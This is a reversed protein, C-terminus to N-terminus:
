IDHGRRRAGGPRHSPGGAMEFPDEEDDEQNKFAAVENMGGQWIEWWRRIVDKEETSNIEAAALKADKTFNHKGLSIEKKKLRPDRVTRRWEIMRRWYTSLGLKNRRNENISRAWESLFDAIEKLTLGTELMNYGESFCENYNYIAWFEEETEDDLPPKRLPATEAGKEEAENTVEDTYDGDQFAKDEQDATGENAERADPQPAVLEEPVPQPAAALPDPATVDRVAQGPM